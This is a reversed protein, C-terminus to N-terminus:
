ELPQCPPNSRPISRLPEHPEGSLHPLIDKEANIGWMGTISLPEAPVMPAIKRVEPRSFLNELARIREVLSAAFVVLVVDDESLYRGFRFEGQPVSWLDALLGGDASPDLTVSISTLGREDNVSTRVHLRDLASIGLVSMLARVSEATAEDEMAALEILSPTFDEVIMHLDLEIESEVRQKVIPGDTAWVASGAVLISLSVSLFPRLGKM